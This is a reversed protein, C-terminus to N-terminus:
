AMLQHIIGRAKEAADVIPRLHEQVPHEPDVALLALEAHAMVPTLINNFVGIAIRLLYMSRQFRM